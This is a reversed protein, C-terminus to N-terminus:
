GALTRYARWALLGRQTWKWIGRGRAAALLATVAAIVLPRERVYRVVAIGRDAVRLPGEMRVMLVALEDRQADCLALLHSRRRAAVVANRHSM